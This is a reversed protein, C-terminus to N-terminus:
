YEVATILIIVWTAFGIAAMKTNEHRAKDKWGDRYGIAYEPSKSVVIHGPPEPPILYAFGVGFIGCGLGALAWAPNSQYDREGDLRGQAYLEPTGPTPTYPPTFQTHACSVLFISFAVMYIHKGM